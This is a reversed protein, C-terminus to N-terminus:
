PSATVTSTVLAAVAGVAAVQPAGAAVVVGCHRTALSALYPAASRATTGSTVALYQVKAHTRLSAKQLGAWAAAAQSGALGDPGTLM